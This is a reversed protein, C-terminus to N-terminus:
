VSENGASPASYIEKSEDDGLEKSLKGFPQVRNKEFFQMVKIKLRSWFGPELPPRNEVTARSVIGLSGSIENDERCDDYSLPEFESQASGGNENRNYEDLIENVLKQLFIHLQSMIIPLIKGTKKRTM